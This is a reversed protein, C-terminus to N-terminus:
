AVARRECDREELFRMYAGRRLENLTWQNCAVGRLWNERAPWFPKEMDRYAWSIPAAVSEGLVIVPVGELIADVAVNSSHTVVCWVNKLSEQIDGEGKKKVVIPRDTYKRIDGVVFSLWATLDIGYFDAVPKTMPIALIDKGDKRWPKLEVKLSDLRSSTWPLSLDIQAQRGNRSVRYYGDFHGHGIYGHDIYHYPRKVSECQKIINETGRLIGYMAAEGDLLGSQAPVIRGDCGEAFAAMIARSIPHETTYCRIM